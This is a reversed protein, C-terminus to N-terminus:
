QIKKRYHDVTYAFLGGLIITTLITGLMLYFCCSADTTGETAAAPIVVECVGPDELYIYNVKPGLSSHLMDNYLVAKHQSHFYISKPLPPYIQFHKVFDGETDVYTRTTTVSTATGDDLRNVQM